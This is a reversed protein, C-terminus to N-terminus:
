QVASPPVGMVGATRRLVRTNTSVIKKLKLKTIAQNFYTLIGLQLQLRTTCLIELRPEM